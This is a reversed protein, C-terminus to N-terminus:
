DHHSDHGNQASRRQLRAAARELAQGPKLFRPRIGLNAASPEVGGPADDEASCDAGDNRHADGVM